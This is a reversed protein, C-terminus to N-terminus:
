CRIVCIFYLLRLVINRQLVRLLAILSSALLGFRWFRKLLYKSIIENISAVPRNTVWM